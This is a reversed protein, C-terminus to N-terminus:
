RTNSRLSMKLIQKRNEREKELACRDPQENLDWILALNAFIQFAHLGGLFSPSFLPSPTFPCIFYAYEFRLSCVVSKKFMLASQFTLFNAWARVKWNEYRESLLKQIKHWCSLRCSNETLFSTLFSCVVGWDESGTLLTHPTFHPVASVPM